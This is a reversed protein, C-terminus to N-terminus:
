RGSEGNAGNRSGAGVTGSRAGSRMNQNGESRMTADGRVEGNNAGMRRGIDERTRSRASTTTTTARTREMARDSVRSRNAASTRSDISERASLRTSRHSASRYSRDYDGRSYRRSRSRDDSWGFGVTGYSDDYGGAYGYDRYGYDGGWAYSSSRYRPAYASSRYNNACSCGYGSAAAYSRYRRDDYGTGISVGVGPEDYAYDGFGVGVGVPGVGVGIGFAGDGWDRDGSWAWGDHYSRHGGQASAPLAAAAVALSALVGIAIKRNM